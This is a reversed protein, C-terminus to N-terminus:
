SLFRGRGDNRCLSDPRETTHAHDVIRLFPDPGRTKIFEPLAECPLPRSLLYGQIEDCGNQRLFELQEVTEVGEAVVRLSLSRAIGIVAKVIASDNVDELVNDIFSKDIKLADIPLRKLYNLSSYGTGFDDIYITMGLEKLGSLTKISDMLNDMIGSETIEIGLSSPPVGYEDLLSKIRHLLASQHFQRTSLNVAVEGMFKGSERWRAIQRIVKRFVMEGLPLILGTEEALPIFDSPLVVGDPREWRLLAEAGSFDSSRVCYKPQYTMFFENRDMGERLANELSLKLSASVGLEETFFRFSSIGSEKAKGMAIDARKILEEADAGDDPFVSIGISASIFLRYGEIEMPEALCAIIKKVRSAVEEPSEVDTLMIYFDDAGIRSVLAASGACETLFDGMQKLLVDGVYHGLSDNINKFRNIDFVLLALRKNETSKSAIEGQLRSRFADKNPLGTLFDFNSRLELQADKFRVESLDNFVSIYHEPAGDEGYVATCVMWEPYVEGTKRRNWIEGEWHGENVLRMWFDKYFDASHRDSKLIRPSSGVVEASSYGTIATFAANVMQIVSNADTIMIGEVTNDFVAKIIQIYRRTRAPDDCFFFMNEWERAFGEASSTGDKGTM